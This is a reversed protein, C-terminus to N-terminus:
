AFPMWFGPCWRQSRRRYWLARWLVPFHLCTLWPSATRVSLFVSIGRQFGQISRGFLDYRVDVPTRELFFRVNPFGAHISKFLVVFRTHVLKWAFTICKTIIFVKKFNWIIVVKLIITMQLTFLFIVTLDQIAASWGTISMVSGYRRWQLRLFQLSGKIPICYLTTTPM